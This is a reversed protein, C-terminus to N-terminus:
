LKIIDIADCLLAFYDHYFPKFCDCLVLIWIFENDDEIITRKINEELITIHVVCLSWFCYRDWSTSFNLITWSTLLNKLNNIECEISALSVGRSFITFCM